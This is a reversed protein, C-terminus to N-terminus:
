GNFEGARVASLVGALADSFELDCVFDGASVAPLDKLYVCRIHASLDGLDLLRQRLQASAKASESLVALDAAVQDANRM